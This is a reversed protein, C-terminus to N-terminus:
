DVLVPAFPRYNERLHEQTSPLFWKGSNIWKESHTRLPFRGSGPPRSPKASTRMISAIKLDAAEPRASFTAGRLACFCILRLWYIVHGRTCSGGSTFTSGGCEPAYASNAGIDEIPWGDSVRLALGSVTGARRFIRPVLLQRQATKGVQRNPVDASGTPRLAGASALLAGRFAHRASAPVLLAGASRFRAGAAAARAGAPHHLAGALCLRASVPHFKAGGFMHLASARGLLAGASLLLAGAPAHLASACTFHPGARRLQRGARALHANARALLGSACALLASACGRRASACSSQRDVGQFEVRECDRLRPAIGCRARWFQFFWTEFGIRRLVPATRRLNRRNFWQLQM